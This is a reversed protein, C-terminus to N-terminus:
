LDFYRAPPLLFEVECDMFAPPEIEVTDDDEDDEVGYFVDLYDRVEILKDIDWANSDPDYIGVLDPHETFMMETDDVFRRRGNALRFGMTIRIGIILGDDALILRLWALDLPTDSPTYIPPEILMMHSPERKDTAM